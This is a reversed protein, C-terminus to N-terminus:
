LHCKRGHCLDSWYFMAQLNLFYISSETWVAFFTELTHDFCPELLVKYFEGRIVGWLHIDNVSSNANISIFSWLLPHWKRHVSMCHTHNINRLEKLAWLVNIKASLPSVTQTMVNRWNTWPSQYQLDMVASSFWRQLILQVAQKEHRTCM